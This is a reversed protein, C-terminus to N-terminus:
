INKMVKSSMILLWVNGFRSLRISYDFASHTSARQNAYIESIYQKQIIHQKRGQERGLLREVLM